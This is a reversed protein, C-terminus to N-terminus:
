RYSSIWIWISRLLLSLFVKIRPLTNRSPAPSLLSIAANRYGCGWEVCYSSKLLARNKVGYSHLVALLNQHHSHQSSQPSNRPVGPFLKPNSYTAIVGIYGGAELRVWSSRSSLLCFRAPPPPSVATSPPAVPARLNMYSTMTPAPALSPGAVHVLLRLPPCSPGCGADM